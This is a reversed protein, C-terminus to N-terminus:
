RLKHKEVEYSSKLAEPMMDQLYVPKLDENVPTGSIRKYREVDEDWARLRAEFEEMTARAPKVVRLGLAVMGQRSCDLHDRALDRFIKAGNFDTDKELAMVTDSLKGTATESLIQYLQESLWKM